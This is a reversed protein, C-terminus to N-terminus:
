WTGAIVQLAWAAMAVLGGAVLVLIALRQAYPHVYDMVIDRMGVWAHLLLMGFFLLSAVSMAPAAIFDKWHPYDQPPAAALWVFVIILYTAMYVASLRQILWAKLGHSRAIM